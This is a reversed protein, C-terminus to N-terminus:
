KSATSKVFETKSVEVDDGTENLEYVYAVMSNGTIALLVFSPGVKGVGSDAGHM